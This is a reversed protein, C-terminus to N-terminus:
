WSSAWNQAIQLKSPGGGTVPVGSSPTETAAASSCAAVILSFISLLGILGPRVPLSILRKM